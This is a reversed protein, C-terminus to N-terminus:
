RRQALSSGRMQRSMRGAGKANDSSMPSEAACGCEWDDEASSVTVAALALSLLM